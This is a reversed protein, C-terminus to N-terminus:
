RAIRASGNIAYKSYRFIFVNIAFTQLLLLGKRLKGDEDEEDEDEEGEEQEEDDIDDDDDLQDDDDDDPDISNFEAMEQFDMM